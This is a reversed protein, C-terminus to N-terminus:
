DHKKFMNDKEDATFDYMQQQQTGYVKKKIQVCMCVRVFIFNDDNLRFFVLKGRRRRRKGRM